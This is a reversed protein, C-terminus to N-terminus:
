MSRGGICQRESPPKLRKPTALSCPCGFYESIAEVSHMIRPGYDDEDSNENELRLRHNLAIKNTQGDTIANDTIVYGDGIYFLLM